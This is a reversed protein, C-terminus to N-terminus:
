WEVHERGYDDFVQGPVHWRIAPVRASPEVDLSSVGPPLRFRLTIEAQGGRPIQFYGAALAQTDGDPGAGVIPGAGDIAVNTASGPVNAALVGQYTGDGVTIGAVYSSLGPPAENHLQLRVTVDTAGDDRDATELHADVHLFQDLKNGGFNEISVAL